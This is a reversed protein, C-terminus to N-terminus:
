ALASALARAMDDDNVVLVSPDSKALRWSRPRSRKCGAPANVNAWAIVVKRTYHGNGAVDLNTGSDTPTFRLRSAEAHL